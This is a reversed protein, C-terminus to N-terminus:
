VGAQAEKARKEAWYKERGLRMKEKAEPTLEKIKPKTQIPVKNKADLEAQLKKIQEKMEEIQNPQIEGAKVMEEAIERREMQKYPSDVTGHEPMNEPWNAKALATMGFQGPITANVMFTSAMEQTIGTPRIMEISCYDPDDNEPDILKLINKRELVKDKNANQWREHQGIAGPPNRRMVETTPMGARIEENLQQLRKSLFDKVEGSIPPPSNEELDDDLANRRQVLRARATETIEKLAWPPQNLVGDVQRKEEERQRREKVRLFRTAKQALRGKKSGVNRTRAALESFHKVEVESM